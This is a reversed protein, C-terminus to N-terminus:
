RCLERYRQCNGRGVEGLEEKYLCARRLSRCDAGYGWRGRGYDRDYSYYRYEAQQLQADNSTPAAVSPLAFASAFGLALILVRM